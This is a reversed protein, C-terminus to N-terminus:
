FLLLIMSQLYGPYWLCIILNVLIILIFIFGTSGDQPSSCVTFEYIDKWTQYTMFCTYVSLYIFLTHMTNLAYTSLFVRSSNKFYLSKCSVPIISGSWHFLQVQGTLNLRNMYFFCSFSPFDKLYM